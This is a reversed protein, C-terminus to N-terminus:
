LNQENEEKENILMEDIMKRQNIQEKLLKTQKFREKDIEKLGKRVARVRLAMLQKLEKLFEERASKALINCIENNPNVELNDNMVQQYAFINREIDEETLGDVLLSSFENRTVSGDLIKIILEACNGNVPYKKSSNLGFMVFGDNGLVEGLVVGAKNSVTVNKLNCVIEYNNDYVVADSGIEHGVVIGNDLVWYRTLNNSIRKGQEDILFCTHPGEKAFFKGKSHEITIHGYSMKNFDEKSCIYDYMQEKDDPAWLIVYDGADVESVFQPSVREGVDNVYYSLNRGSPIQKLRTELDSETVKRRGLEDPESIAKFWDSVYGRSPILLSFNNADSQFVYQKIKSGGNDFDVLDEKIAGMRVTKNLSEFCINGSRDIVMYDYEPEWNGDKYLFNGEKDHIPNKSDEKKILFISENFDRVNKLMNNSVSCINEAVLKGNKLLDKTSKGRVYGIAFGAKLNEIKEYKFLNKFFGM